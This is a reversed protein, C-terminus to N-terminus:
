ELVLTQYNLKGNDFEYVRFSSRHACAGPSSIYIPVNKLTHFGDKFPHVAIVAKVSHSNLAKEWRLRRGERWGSYPGSPGFSGTTRYHHFLIVPKGGLSALVRELYDPAAAESAAVLAGSTLFVLQVKGVKATTLLSESPVANPPGSLATNLAPVTYVPSSLSSKLQNIRSKSGSLSTGSQDSIVSYVVFRIDFPLKQISAITKETLDMHSSDGVRADTIHIFYFRNDVRPTKGTASTCFCLWFLWSLLIIPTYPTPHLTRVPRNPRPSLSSFPFNYIYSSPM